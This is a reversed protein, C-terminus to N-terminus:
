FRLLVLTDALINMKEQAFALRLKISKGSHNSTRLFMRDMRMKVAVKLQMKAIGPRSIGAISFGNITAKGSINAVRDSIPKGSFDHTATGELM